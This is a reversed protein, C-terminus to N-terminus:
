KKPREGAVHRKQKDKVRTHVHGFATWIYHCQTKYAHYINYLVTLWFLCMKNWQILYSVIILPIAVLLHYINNIEMRCRINLLRPFLSVELNYIFIHSCKLKQSKM